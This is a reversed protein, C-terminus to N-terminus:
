RGSQRVWRYRSSWFSSLDHSRPYSADVHQLHEDCEGHDVCHDGCKTSNAEGGDNENLNRLSKALLHSLSVSVSVSCRISESCERHNVVSSIRSPSFRSNKRAIPPASFSPACEQINLRKLSKAHFAKLGKWVLQGMIHYGSGVCGPIAWALTSHPTMHGHSCLWHIYLTVHLIFHQSITKGDYFVCLVLQNAGWLWMNGGLEGLNDSGLKGIESMFFFRTMAQHIASKMISSPPHLKVIIFTILGFKM